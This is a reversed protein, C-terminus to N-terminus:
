RGKGKVTRHAERYDAQLQNSERSQDKRGSVTEPGNSRQLLGREEWSAKDAVKQTGGCHMHFGSGAM